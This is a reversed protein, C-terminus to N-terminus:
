DLTVHQSTISDVNNNIDLLIKQFPQALPSTYPGQAAQTALEGFDEALVNFLKKLQNGLVCPERSGGDTGLSIGNDDISITRNNSGTTLLIKEDTLQIQTRDNRLIWGTGDSFFLQAFGNKAERNILVHLQEDDGCEDIVNDIEQTLQMQRFYMLQMPNDRNSIVWVREGVVPRSYVGPTTTMLLPYVNPLVDTSEADSFVAQASAKITGYDDVIEKVIGPTLRANIFEM